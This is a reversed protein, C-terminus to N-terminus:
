AKSKENDASEKKLEEKAKKKKRIDRIFAYVEYGFFALVGVSVVIQGFTM